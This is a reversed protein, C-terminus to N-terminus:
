SGQEEGEGRRRKLSGLTANAVSSGSLPGWVPSEGVVRSTASLAVLMCPLVATVDVVAKLWGVDRNVAKGWWVLALMMLLFGNRGPKQLHSWDMEITPLLTDDGVNGSIRSKPQLSLWWAWWQQSFIKTNKIEM